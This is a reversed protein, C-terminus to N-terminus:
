SVKCNRKRLVSISLGAEFKVHFSIFHMDTSHCGFYHIGTSYIDTAVVGLPFVAVLELPGLIPMGDVLVWCRPCLETSLFFNKNFNSILNTVRKMLFDMKLLFHCKEHTITWAKKEFFPTLFIRCCKQPKGHSKHPHPKLLLTPLGVPSIRGNM